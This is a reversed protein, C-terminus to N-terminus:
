FFLLFFTKISLLQINEIFNIYSKCINIFFYLNVNVTMYKNTYLFHGLFTYCDYTHIKFLNIKINLITTKNVQINKINNCM